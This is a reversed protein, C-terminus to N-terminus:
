PLATRRSRTGGRLGPQDQRAQRSTGSTRRTTARAAASSAARGVQKASDALEARRERCARLISALPSGSSAVTKGIKKGSVHKFLKDFLQLRQWRRPLLLPRPAQAKSAPSIAGKPSTGPTLSPRSRGPQLQPRRAHWIPDTEFATCPESTTWWPTGSAVVRPRPVRNPLLGGLRVRRRQDGSSATSSKAAGFEM